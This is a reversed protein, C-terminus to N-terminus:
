GSIFDDVFTSPYFWQNEIIHGVGYVRNHATDARINLGELDRFRRANFTLMLRRLYEMGYTTGVREGSEESYKLLCHGGFSQCLGRYRLDLRVTLFMDREFKLAASKVVANRLEGYPADDPRDM